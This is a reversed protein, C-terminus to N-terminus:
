NLMQGGYRKDSAPGTKPILGGAAAPRNESYLFKPGVGQKLLLIASMFQVM